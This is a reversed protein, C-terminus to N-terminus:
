RLVKKVSGGKNIIIHKIEEVSYQKSLPTNYCYLTGGINLNNPIESIPIYDMYLNKTITLNNPLSTINKCDILNLDGNIYKLNYLSKINHPIVIENEDVYEEIIFERDIVLDKDKNYIGEGEKKELFNLYQELEQVNTIRGNFPRMVEIEKILSGLKIM